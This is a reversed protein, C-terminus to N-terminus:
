QASSRDGSMRGVFEIIPMGTEADVLGAKM